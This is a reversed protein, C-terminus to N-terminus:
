KVVLQCLAMTGLIAIPVLGQEVMVMQTDGWHPWFDDYLVWPVKNALMTKTDATIAERSHDGDVFGFDYRGFLPDREGPRIFAFREGWMEEMVRRAEMTEPRDSTEESVVCKAGLHFFISASHGLCFGVERVAFGPTLGAIRVANGIQRMAQAESHYPTTEKRKPLHRTIANFVREEEASTMANGVLFWDDPSM